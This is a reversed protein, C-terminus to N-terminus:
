KISNMLQDRGHRGLLIFSIHCNGAQLDGEELTVGFVKEPLDLPKLFSEEPPDTGTDGAVTELNRALSSLFKLITRTDINYFKKGENSVALGFISSNEYSAIV